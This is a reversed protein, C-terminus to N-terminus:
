GSPEIPPSCAAPCKPQSACPLCISPRHVSRGVNRDRPLYKRVRHWFEGRRHGTILIVRRDGLFAYKQQWTQPMNRQRHITDLLADIVTNGTVRVAAPPVGESRLTEAALETPACYLTAVLDAVQRNLEEPWPSQLNGTRLGAEVHVFPVRRYFASLAAAMVTTTDGQAVVCDPRRSVLVADIRELCAATLGALSQNPVMLDLQDDPCIRFYDLLPTLMERHQGSVCVLPEIQDSRKQCEWLVPALKITEPRTGLVILPRLM